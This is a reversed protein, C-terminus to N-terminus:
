VALAQERRHGTPAGVQDPHPSVQEASRTDCFRERTLARPHKKKRVRSVMIECAGRPCSGHWTVYDVRASKVYGLTAGRIHCLGAM